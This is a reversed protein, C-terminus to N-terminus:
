KMIITIDRIRNKYLEKDFINLLLYKDDLIVHSILKNLRSYINKYQHYITDTTNTYNNIIKTKTRQYLWNLKEIEDCFNKRQSLNNILLEIVKNQITFNISQEFILKLIFM